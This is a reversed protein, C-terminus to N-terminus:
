HRRYSSSPPPSSACLQPAPPSPLFWAPRVKEIHDDIIAYGHKLQAQDKQAKIVTKEDDTKSKRVLKQRNLYENIQSFDCRAFSQM